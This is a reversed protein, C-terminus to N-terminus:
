DEERLQGVNGFFKAFIWGGFIAVVVWFVYNGVSEVTNVFAPSFNVVELETFKKPLTAVRNVFGALISM